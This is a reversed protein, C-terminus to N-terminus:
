QKVVSKIITKENIDSMKILYKGPPLNNMDLVHKYGTVKKTIILKGTNEYLEIITVNTFDKDIEITLLNSVPNPFLVFGPESNIESIASVGSGVIIESTDTFSGDQTLVTIIVSGDAMGTVIGSSLVKAVSINSSKWFITKNTAESPTITATLQTTAGVNVSTSEPTLSIGSVHVTSVNVICTDTFSGDLSSVTITTSGESIGKVLGSYNVRAIHTNDSKWIKSTDTANSPFLTANLQITNAVNISATEHNIKIGTVPISSVILETSATIDGDQTTATITVLGESLATVLGASNVCAVALNDSSWNVTKNSADSPTIVATLQKTENSLISDSAPSMAIGTVQIVPGSIINFIIRQYAKLTPEGNDTVELIVHLQKGPENPVIFSANNKSTDNSITLKSTANDADYYQWWFYTLDNSDPDSSLSADLLITDGVSVYRVNKGILKAVPQHNAAKYTSAVCWDMRAAFDNQAPIVWRWFMKNSNGDDTVVGKDTIHNPKSSPYDYGGRGGWGGHTYDTHSELGNNILHLWSPTDGESIYSQPSLAGLPGHGEKVNTNLWEPKMYEQVDLPNESPKGRAGEYSEYDWVNDWGYAEYIFAEKVNEEIWEGGGDQYWICYIRIKAVAKTFQALTYQGSYKLRWLASAITNAGGWACVHVPRPDNDLLTNIILQEGKTNQTEMNPPTVYLDNSNENGLEILSRLSDAEPYDPNHIRLTPLISDYQVLQKEIWNENSHGSQQFRSNNQVIGVVDFDCSYLLFRIMTSRDDVEGDTTAIVRPKIYNDSQSFGPLFIILFFTFLVLNKLVSYNNLTKIITINKKKM